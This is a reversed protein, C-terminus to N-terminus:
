FAVENQWFAPANVLFSKVFNASDSRFKNKNNRFTSEFMPILQQKM